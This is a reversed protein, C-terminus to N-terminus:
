KQKKDEEGRRLEVLAEHRLRLQEAIRFFLKRFQSGLHPSNAETEQSEAGMALVM